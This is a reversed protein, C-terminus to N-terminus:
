YNHKYMKIPAPQFRNIEPRRESIRSKKEKPLICSVIMVIVYGVAQVIALCAVTEELGFRILVFLPTFIILFIFVIYLAPGYKHLWKM